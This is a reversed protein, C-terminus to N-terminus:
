EDKMRYDRRNSLRMLAQKEQYGYFENMENLLRVVSASNSRDSDVDNLESGRIDAISCVNRSRGSVGVNLTQCMSFKLGTGHFSM